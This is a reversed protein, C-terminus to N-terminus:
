WDQEVGARKPTRRRDRQEKKEEDAFSNLLREAEEKSMQGPKPRQEAPSSSDGPDTSDQEPGTKGADGEPPQKEEQRSADPKGPDEQTQKEPDDGKEKEPQSDPESQPQGGGSQNQDQRQQDKMQELLGALNRLNEDQPHQRLGEQVELAAEQHKGAIYQYAAGHYYDDASKAASGLSFWTLLCFFFTFVFARGDSKGKAKTKVKAKTM